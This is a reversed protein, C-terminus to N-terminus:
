FNNEDGTAKIDEFSEEDEDLEEEEEEEEEGEEMEEEKRDQQPEPKIDPCSSPPGSFFSASWYKNLASAHCSINHIRILSQHRIPIRVNECSSICVIGYNRCNLALFTKVSCRIMDKKKKPYNM